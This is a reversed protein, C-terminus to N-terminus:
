YASHAIQIAPFAFTFLIALVSVNKSKPYQASELLAM